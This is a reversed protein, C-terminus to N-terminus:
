LSDNKEQTGGILLAITVMTLWPFEDYGLWKQLIFLLLTFPVVLILEPFRMFALRKQCYNFLPLLALALVAGVLAQLVFSALSPWSGQESWLRDLLLIVALVWASMPIFFLLRKGATSIANSTSQM